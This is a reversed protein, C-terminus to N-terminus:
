LSGDFCSGLESTFLNALAKTWHAYKQNPKFLNGLLIHNPTSGRGTGLLPILDVNSVDQLVDKFEILIVSIFFLFSLFFSPFLFLLFLPFYIRPKSKNSNFPIFLSPFTLFYIKRLSFSQAM